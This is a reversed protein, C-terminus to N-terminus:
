ICSRLTDHEDLEQLTFIGTRPLKADPFNTRMDKECERLERAVTDLNKWWVVNPWVILM